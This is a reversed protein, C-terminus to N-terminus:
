TLITILDELGVTGWELGIKAQAPINWPQVSDERRAKFRGNQSSRLGESALAKVRPGEVGCIM